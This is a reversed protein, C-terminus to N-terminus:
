DHHKQGAQDHSQGSRKEAQSVLVFVKMELPVPSQVLRRSRRSASCGRWRRCCAGHRSTAENEFATNSPFKGHDTPSDDEGDKRENGAHEPEGSELAVEGVDGLDQEEDEDHEENDREVEASGSRRRNLAASFWLMTPRM